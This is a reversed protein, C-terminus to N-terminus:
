GRDGDLLQLAVQEVSGPMEGSSAAAILAIPSGLVVRGIGTGIWYAVEEVTGTWPTWPMARPSLVPTPEPTMQTLFPTTYATAPVILCDSAISM